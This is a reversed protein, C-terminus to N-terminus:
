TIYSSSPWTCRGHPVCLTSGLWLCVGIQVAEDDLRLGHYPCPSFGIGVIHCHPQWYLLWDWSRAWAPSLGLKIQWFPQKPPLTNPITGFSTLWDTVVLCTCGSLIDDQVSLTSAASALFAPLVLSSVRRLRVGLGGDKVPLSAPIWQM